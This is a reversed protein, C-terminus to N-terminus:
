QIGIVAFGQYQLGQHTVGRLLDGPLHPEALTRHQATQITRSHLQAHGEARSVDRVSNRRHPGDFRRRLAARCSVVISMAERLHM